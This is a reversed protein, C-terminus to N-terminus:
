PVRGARWSARAARWAGEYRRDRQLTLVPVASGEVFPGATREFVVQPPAAGRRRYTWVEGTPTPRVDDPPGFLVYVSGPDTKWGAKQTSFLRNAAEVREYFTRLADAARRRDDARAGWFADFARQGGRRLAETEAPEALYVLPDVLDGLRTVLPFDSRRVVVRRVSSAVPGGGADRLTLRLSYLGPPLAPLAVEVPVAGGAPVPRRVVRLTDREGADLGRAALSTPPPTAGGVPEAVTTDRRLRVVSAVLVTRDAVVAAQALVRVSDSQAPLRTGVLPRGAGGELRLGSLWPGDGPVVVSEARRATREAGVDTVTAEVAYTGPPGDVRARRVLPPAARAEAVSAVRLTDAGQVLTPPGVGGVRLTWEAVAVLADQAPRFTLSSPSVVLVLDLGTADGRVAAVADLAVDPEGLRYARAPGDTAVGGAGGCGALLVLAAGGWLRATM